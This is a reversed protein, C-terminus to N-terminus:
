SAKLWNILEDQLLEANLAEDSLNIFQDLEKVIVLGTNGFREGLKELFSFEAGQNSYAIFLFYVEDRRKESEALVSETRAKDSQNPAGDTNFIILSRNKTLPAQPTTEPTAQGGFFKKFFGESPKVPAPTATPLWGFHELNKELVYSYDTGGNWGPVMNIIEREVYGEVTSATVIGVRNANGVGNSFAFVDIEGNPDFVLGWPVLRTILKTTKGEKHEDEYSGSVDLDFAVQARLRATDVGKKQLSLRLSEASKNLDLKM